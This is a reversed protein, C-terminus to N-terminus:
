SESPNGAEALTKAKRLLHDIMAGTVDIGGIVQAHPTYFPFNSELVYLADDRVLIDVGGLELRLARVAKIALAAIKVPPDSTFTGAGEPIHARFDGPETRCPYGAIAQDGVVVIRWLTADKIYASLTPYRGNAIAFDVFSCLGPYSDLMVVGVGAQGGMKALLPFGGLRDVWAKLLERDASGCFVTPPIPLGAREFHLPQSTPVYFIRDDAGSYFTAIGPAYLFQEVRLANATSTPRYLLDGAQLLRPEAYDFREADIQVYEVSRKQCAERLLDLTIPAVRETVCGFKPPSKM